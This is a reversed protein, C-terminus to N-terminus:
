RRVTAAQARELWSRPADPGGEKFLAELSVPRVGADSASDLLAAPAEAGSAGSRLEGLPTFGAGSIGVLFRQGEAEVVAIWQGKGVPQRSVVTLRGSTTGSGKATKHGMGRSRRALKSLGFLAVVIVGLWLVMQALLHGVSLDPAAAASHQAAVLLDTM